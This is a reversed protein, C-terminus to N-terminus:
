AAVRIVTKGFAQGEAYWALADPAEDFGFVRAIVPRLLHLGIVRVASALQSTSGAAVARLAAGSRFVANADIMSDGAAMTGILGIEGGIAIANLSQALTGGGGVEVVRQVGSGGTLRRVEAGWDPTRRYNVVEAAGLERLQDAKDDSSTTAIVRAGAAKALMLALLSVAGSGLTLM